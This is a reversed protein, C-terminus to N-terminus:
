KLYKTFFKFTKDYYEIQNKLKRVGHGEDEFFLYEVVQNRAELADVVQQAEDLPVRPDTAGHVVLLPTKVRDMKHIPSISILFEEDSLPGYEAERLKRRYPKTNQLFTVLNSIGVVDVAAAFLDPAETILALVMFGGYSGGMVGLQANSTYGQDILYEGLAIGDKVSNMRLKYDDLAMYHSGYGSSGRVNPACIGIGLELLYQFHKFFMPRFQGEPGGHFHCIIPIQTGRKYGKPLYLFAPVKLGDFSEYEILEPQIFEHPNVGAYSSWTLAEGRIDRFSWKYIEASRKPFQYTYLINLDEDFGYSSLIGKIQPSPLDNNLWGDLLYLNSYGEENASYMLYRGCHSVSLGSIEWNIDVGLNRSELTEHNYHRLKKFDNNENSLIYFEHDTGAFSFEYSVNGEHATLHTTEKTDQDYLYINQNANSTAVGYLISQGSPSYEMPFAWGCVDIKLELTKDIIHYEYIKFDQGNEHNSRFLFKSSCSSWVIGGAQADKEQFVYQFSGTITDILAIPNHESGKNNVFVGIVRGDPSVSYGEVGEDFFSLQHPWHNKYNSSFLQTVGDVRKCYYYAGYKGSQVNGHAEIKIFQKLRGLEYKEM